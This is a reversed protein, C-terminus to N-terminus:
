GERLTQGGKRLLPLPIRSGARNMLLARRQSAFSKQAEHLAKRYGSWALLLCNLKGGLNSHSFVLKQFSHLNHERFCFNSQAM